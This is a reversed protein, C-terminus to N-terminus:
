HTITSLHLHPIGKEMDWLTTFNLVGQPHLWLGGLAAFVM